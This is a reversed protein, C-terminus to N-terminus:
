ENNRICVAMPQEDEDSNSIAPLDASGKESEAARARTKEDDKGIRVPTQAEAGNHILKVKTGDSFNGTKDGNTVKKPLKINVGYVKFKLPTVAKRRLRSPREESQM